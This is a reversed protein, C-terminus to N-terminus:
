SANSSVSIDLVCKTLLCDCLYYYQEITVPLASLPSFLAIQIM